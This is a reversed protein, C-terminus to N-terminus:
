FEFRGQRPVLVQKPESGKPAAFVHAVEWVLPTQHEWDKNAVNVTRTSYCISYGHKAIDHLADKFATYVHVKESMSYLEYCDGYERMYDFLFAISKAADEGLDPPMDYAGAEITEVLDALEKGSSATTADLTIHKRKLEEVEKELEAESKREFPKNYADIDELQFGRALARRTDLSSPEGNEVRQLTRVNLGSLEALTEQSWGMATRCIKVVM